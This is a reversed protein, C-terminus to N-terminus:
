IKLQDNLLALANQFAKVVDADKPVILSAKNEFPFSFLLSV